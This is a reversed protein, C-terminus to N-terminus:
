LIKKEIITRSTRKTLLLISSTVGVSDVIAPTMSSAVFISFFSWSAGFSFLCIYSVLFFITVFGFDNFPLAFFFIYLYLSSMFLEYSPSIFGTTIYGDISWSTQANERRFYGGLGEEEMVMMNKWTKSWYWYLFLLSKFACLVVLWVSSYVLFLLYCIYQEKFVM